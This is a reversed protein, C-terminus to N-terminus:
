CCCKKLNVKRNEEMDSNMMDIEALNINDSNDKLLNTWYIEVLGIGDSWQWTQEDLRWKWIYENLKLSTINRSKCINIRYKINSIM